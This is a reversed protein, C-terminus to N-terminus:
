VPKVRPAVWPDRRRKKAKSSYGDCLHRWAHKLSLQLSGFWSPSWKIKQGDSQPSAQASCRDFLQTKRHDYMRTHKVFSSPRQNCVVDDCNDLLM